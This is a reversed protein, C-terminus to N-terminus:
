FTGARIFVVGSIGSLEAFGLNHAEKGFVARYNIGAGVRFHKHANFVGYVAPIIAAYDHRNKVDTPYEFKTSAWGATLEPQLSFKKNHFVIYSFGLGAFHHTLLANVVPTETIIYAVNVQSSLTHYKASVVFKHNIVWNLNFGLVMAAKTKLIQTPQMEFGVNCASKFKTAKFFPQNTTTDEVM